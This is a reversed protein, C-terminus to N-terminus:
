TELVMIFEKIRNLVLMNNVTKGVLEAQKFATNSGLLYSSYKQWVSALMQFEIAPKTNSKLLAFNVLFIFIFATLFSKGLFDSTDSLYSFVVDGQAELSLFPQFLTDFRALSPLRRSADLDNFPIELLIDNLQYNHTAGHLL